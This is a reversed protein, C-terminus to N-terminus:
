VTAILGLQELRTIVSVLANRVAVAESQVYLAGPSVPDAIGAGQVVPTAGYFGLRQTTATGIKTGTTSGLILNYADAVTIAAPGVSVLASGASNKWDTLNASHAPEGQVTLPVGAPNQGDSRIPQGFAIQDSRVKLATIGSAVFTLQNGSFAQVQNTSVGLGTAELDGNVRLHGPTDLTGAAARRLTTDLAANGPGWELTGDANLVFRDHTDGAVRATLVDSGATAYTGGVPVYQGQLIVPLSAWATVGDGVKLIGAADWGPEGFELVPNVTAWDAATDRRLQLLQNRGDPAPM